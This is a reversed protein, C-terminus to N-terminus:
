ESVSWKKGQRERLQCVSEGAREQVCVCKCMAKFLLYVRGRGSLIARGEGGGGGCVCVCVCACVCVVYESCSADRRTLDSTNDCTVLIESFDSKSDNYITLKTNLQRKIIDVLHIADSFSIKSLLFLNEASFKVLFCSQPV